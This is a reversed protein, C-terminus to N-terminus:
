VGLESVVFSVPRVGIEDRGALCAMVLDIERRQQRLDIAQQASPPREISRDRLLWKASRSADHRVQREAGPIWFVIYATGGAQHPTM